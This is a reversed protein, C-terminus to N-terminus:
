AHAGVLLVPGMLESYSFKTGLAETISVEKGQFEIPDNNYVVVQERIKIRNAVFDWGRQTLRWTGSSGKDEDDTPEGGAEVLGWWRAKAYDGSRTASSEGGLIHGCERVHIWKTRDGGSARAFAILWRCIISSMKRAYRKAFQGCCPCKTGHELKSKLEKRALALTQRQFISSLVDRAASGNIQHSCSCRVAKGGSLILGEVLYMPDIKANCASCTITM